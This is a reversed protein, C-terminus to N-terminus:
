KLIEVKCIYGIVEDIDAETCRIKGDRISYYNIVKNGDITEEKRKLIWLSGSSFVLCNEHFNAPRDNAIMLISDPLYYPMYHECPMKIALKIKARIDDDYHSIDMLEFDNSMRMYGDECIPKLVNVAKKKPKLETYQKHMFDVAWEVYYSISEPLNRVNQVIARERKTMSGCGILEDVTIGLAKAITVVTNLKCAKGKYLFDKFTELNVDAIEALERITINKEGIYYEINARLSWWWDDPKQVLNRSMKKLNQTSEM